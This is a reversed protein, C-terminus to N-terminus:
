LGMQAACAKFLRGDPAAYDDMISFHNLGPMDITRGPLAKASWASSYEAQHRSFEDSEDGGFALLLEGCREPLQRIPSLAAVGEDSLNLSDNVYCLRISELEYLGSIALGGKIM